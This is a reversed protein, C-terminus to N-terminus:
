ARNTPRLYFFLLITIFFFNGRVSTFIEYPNDRSNLAIECVSVSGVDFYFIGTADDRHIGCSLEPFFKIERELIRVTAIKGSLNLYDERLIEPLVIFSSYLNAGSPVFYITSRAPDVFYFGEEM